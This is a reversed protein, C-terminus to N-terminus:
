CHLIYQFIYQFTQFKISALICYIVNRINRIFDALLLFYLANDNICQGIRLINTTYTVNEDFEHGTNRKKVSDFKHINIM